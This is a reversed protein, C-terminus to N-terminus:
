CVKEYKKNSFKIKEKIRKSLSTYRKQPSSNSIMTAVTKKQGIIIVCKAARTVGTYLLMRHYLLPPGGNVLPIIIAPYESGQSKHVTIAYALTLKELDYNEYDVIRGDEYTVTVIKEKIDVHTIFGVEGNFVGKGYHKGKTWELNYDNKIHMVKDGDRFITQNYIIEDKGCSPNLKNQLVQNLSDIGLYGKKMPALVQIDTPKINLHHPINRTVMTLLDDMAKYADDRKILFFDSSKEEWDLNIGKNIKHANPIITSDESQRHVVTLKSVPIVESDIIDKLIMGPGVSPLQDVDGVIILKTKVDIKKLLKSMLSIDVMSFEDIVVVDSQICEDDDLVTDDDQVQLGIMRHITQASKGTQESMRKAARGTPAALNIKKHEYKEIYTILTDLTTTKGVGPGGTIVILNNLVGKIVADRQTEDLIKNKDKEIQLIRQRITSEDPVNLKYKVKEVLREAINNEMNYYLPLYVNNDEIIIRRDHDLVEIISSVLEENVKLIKATEMVLEPLPCYINGKTNVNLDLVYLIGHYVRFSSTNSIGIRSAIDDAKTFGIGKVDDILQYPNTYIIKKIEENNKYTKKIKVIYAASLGLKIYFMQEERSVNNAIYKEHIDNAKKESIGKILALKEPYNEIINFTDKGLNDVIKKATSPGVGKISLALYNAFVHVDTPIAHRIYEAKFQRGYTPHVTYDGNVIICSGMSLSDITGVCKIRNKKGEPIISFISYGNTENHYTILDVVGKIESM